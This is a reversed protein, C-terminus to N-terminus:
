DPEALYKMRGRVPKKDENFVVWDWRGADLKGELVQTTGPIVPVLNAKAKLLDVTLRETQSRKLYGALITGEDAAVEYKFTAAGKVEFSINQWRGGALQFPLWNATKAGRGKVESPEPGCMKWGIGGIVLLLLSGAIAMGKNIEFKPAHPNWDDTRLPARPPKPAPAAAPETLGSPPAFPDAEPKKAPEEPLLDYTDPLLSATKGCAPCKSANAPM